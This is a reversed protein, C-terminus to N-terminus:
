GELQKRWGDPEDRQCRLDQACALMNMCLAKIDEVLLVCQYEVVMAWPMPKMNKTDIEM